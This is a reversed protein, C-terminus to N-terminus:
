RAVRGYASVTLKARASGRAFFMTRSAVRGLGLPGYVVTARERGGGLELGVRWRGAIDLGELEAGTVWLSVGAPSTDLEVTAGGRALAEVRARALLAVTSERAASVAARDRLSGLPPLALGLVLSVLTLAVSLELLTAGAPRRFRFPRVFSM